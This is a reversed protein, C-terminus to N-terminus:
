YPACKEDVTYYHELFFGSFIGWGGNCGETM